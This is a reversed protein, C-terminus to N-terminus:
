LKMSSCTVSKTSCYTVSKHLLLFGKQPPVLLVKTASCTVSRYRFLYCKQLPVLLVKISSVLLGETTFCTVSRYRFLYCKQLPTMIAIFELLLCVSYFDNNKFLIPCFSISFMMLFLLSHHSPWTHRMSLSLLTLWINCQTGSPLILLPLGRFFLASAMFFSKLPRSIDDSLASSSTISLTLHLLHM